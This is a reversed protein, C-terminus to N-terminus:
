VPKRFKVAFQHTRDRISKEHVMTELTDGPNALIGTGDAMEFGAARVEDVVVNKEIRHTDQGVSIGAGAPAHHDM